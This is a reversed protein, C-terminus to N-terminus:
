PRGEQRDPCRNKNRRLCACASEGRSSWQSIDPGIPGNASGPPLSRAPMPLRLLMVGSTVPLGAQMALEGFDKDFTLVIRQERAAWAVIADDSSGPAFKRVWVIDHGAAALASVAAGPFNEDALFRM